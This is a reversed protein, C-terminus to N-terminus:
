RFTLYKEVIEMKGPSLGYNLAHLHKTFGCVWWKHLYQELQSYIDKKAM